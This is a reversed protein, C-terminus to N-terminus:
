GTLRPRLLSRLHRFLYELIDSDELSYGDVFEHRRHTEKRGRQALVAGKAMDLLAAATPFLIGVVVVVLPGRAAHDRHHRADVLGVERSPTYQGAVGAM